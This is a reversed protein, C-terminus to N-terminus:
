LTPPNAEPRASPAIPQMPLFTVIPKKGRMVIVEEGAEVERLLRSLHTRAQYVTYVM